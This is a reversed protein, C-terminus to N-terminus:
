VRRTGTDAPPRPLPPRVVIEAGKAIVTFEKGRHLFLHQDAAVRRGGAEVLDHRTSDIGAASMIAAGTVERDRLLVPRRDVSIEYRERSPDGPARGARELEAALHGHFAGGESRTAQRAGIAAEAALQSFSTSPDLPEDAVGVGRLTVPRGGASRGTVPRTLRVRENEFFSLRTADSQYAALEDLIDELSTGTATVYIVIADRRDAAWGPSGRKHAINKGSLWDSVARTAAATTNLYVRYQVQATSGLIDFSPDQGTPGQEPGQGGHKSESWAYAVYLADKESWNEESPARWTAEIQALDVTALSATEAQQPPTLPTAHGSRPTAPEARAPVSPPALEPRAPRPPPRRQPPAPQSPRALEPRAPRPQDGVPARLPAQALERDRARAEEETAYFRPPFDLTSYWQGTSAIQKVKRQIVAAPPAPSPSGHARARRAILQATAANGATRQLALLSAPGITLPRSTLAPAASSRGGDEHALWDAREAAPPQKPRITASRRMIPWRLM